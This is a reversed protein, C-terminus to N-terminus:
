LFPLVSFHWEPSPEPNGRGESTVEMPQVKSTINGRRGLLASLVVGALEVEISTSGELDM